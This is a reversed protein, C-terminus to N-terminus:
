HKAIGCCRDVVDEVTVHDRQSGSVGAAEITVTVQCQDITVAFQIDGVVAGVVVGDGLLYADIGVVGQGFTLGIIVLQSVGTLLVALVLVTGM